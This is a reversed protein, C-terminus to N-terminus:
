CFSNLNTDDKFPHCEGCNILEDLALHNCVDIKTLQPFYEKILQNIEKLLPWQKMTLAIGRKTPLATLKEKNWYFERIDVCPFGTTVSVFIGGGIHTIFKVYQKAQLSHVSSDIQQECAMLAAWRKAPLCLSKTDSGPEEITINFEGDQRRVHVRRRDDIIWERAMGSKKWGKEYHV